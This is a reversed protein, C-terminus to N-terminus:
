RTLRSQGLRFQLDLFAFLSGLFIPLFLLVMSYALSSLSCSTNFILLISSHYCSFYSLFFYFFIFILFCLYAGLIDLHPSCWVPLCRVMNASVRLQKGPISAICLIHNSCVGFSNLLEAPNNADIVTVISAQQTTTCIWVLSSLRTELLAGEKSTNLERDLNEIESQSHKLPPSRSDDSYFVSGGVQLM